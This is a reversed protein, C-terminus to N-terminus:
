FDVGFKEYHVNKRDTRQYDECNGTVGRYIDCQRCHLECRACGSLYGDKGDEVVVLKSDFFTFVEGIPRTM